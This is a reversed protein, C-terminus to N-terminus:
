FKAPAILLATVCEAFAGKFNLNFGPTSEDEGGRMFNSVDAEARICVALKEIHQQLSASLHADASLLFFYHDKGTIKEGPWATAVSM